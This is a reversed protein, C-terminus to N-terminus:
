RRRRAGPRPMVASASTAAEGETVAAAPAGEGEGIDDNTLVLVPEPREEVEPEAEVPEPPRLADATAAESAPLDVESLRMMSLSGNPLTFVVRRGDVKWPGDTEIRDGEQTVLWDAAVPAASFAVLAIGLSVLMWRGLSTM